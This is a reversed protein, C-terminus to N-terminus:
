LKTRETLHIVMLFSNDKIRHTQTHPPIHVYTYHRCLGAVNSGRYNSKYIDLLRAAATSYVKYLSLNIKLHLERSTQASPVANSSLKYHSGNRSHRLIHGGGRVFDTPNSWPVDM